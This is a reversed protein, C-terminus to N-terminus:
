PTPSYITITQGPKLNGKSPLRNWNRLDDQVVRFKKAISALTDGKQIKYVIVKPRPKKDGQSDKKKALITLKQQDKLATVQGQLAKTWEQIAKQEEKLFQFENKLPAIEDKLKQIETRLANLEPIEPQKKGSFVGSQSIMWLGFALLTAGLIFIPVLLWKKFAFSRKPKKFGSPSSYEDSEQNVEVEPEKRDEEHPEM